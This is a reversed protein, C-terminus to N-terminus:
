RLAERFSASHRKHTEHRPQLFIRNIFNCVLMYIRNRYNIFNKVNDIETFTMNLSVSALILLVIITVVLTALTIGNENKMM